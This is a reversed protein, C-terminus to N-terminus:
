AFRYYCSNEDSKGGLFHFLLLGVGGGTPTTLIDTPDFVGHTWYPALLPWIGESVRGPALGVLATSIFLLQSLELALALTCFISLM